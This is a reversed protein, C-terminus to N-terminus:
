QDRKLDPNTEKPTLTVLVLIPVRGRTWLAVRGGSNPLSPHSSALEDASVNEGALGRKVSTRQFTRLSELLLTGTEGLPSGACAINVVPLFLMLIPRMPM